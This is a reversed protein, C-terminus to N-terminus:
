PCTQVHLYRGCEADTLQRTVSEAALRLLEDIRLLRLMVM